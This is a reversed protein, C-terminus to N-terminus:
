HKVGFFRHKTSNPQDSCSEKSLCTTFGFYDLIIRMFDTLDPTSGANRLHYLKEAHFLFHVPTNEYIRLYRVNEKQKSMQWRLPHLRVEVPM